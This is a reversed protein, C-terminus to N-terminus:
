IGSRLNNDCGYIMGYRRLDGIM